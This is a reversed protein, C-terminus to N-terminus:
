HMGRPGSGRSRPETGLRARWCATRLYAVTGYKHSPTSIGRPGSSPAAPPQTLLSPITPHYYRDTSQREGRDSGQVGSAQDAGAGDLQRRERGHKRLQPLGRRHHSPHKEWQFRSAKPLLVQGHGQLVGHRWALRKVVTRRPPGHFRLVLVVRAVCRCPRTGLSLSTQDGVDRNASLIGSEDLNRIQM